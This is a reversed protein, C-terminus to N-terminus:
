IFKRAMMKLIVTVVKHSFDTAKLKVIKNLETKLESKIALATLKKNLDSNKILNSIDSKGVLRKKQKLSLM